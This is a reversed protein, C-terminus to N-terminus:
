EVAHIYTTDNEKTTKLIKSFGFMKMAQKAM